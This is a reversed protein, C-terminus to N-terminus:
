HNEVQELSDLRRHAEQLTVYLADLQSEVEHLRSSVDGLSDIRTHADQISTALSGLESDLDRLSSTVEDSGGGGASKENTTARLRRVDDLKGLRESISQIASELSNLRGGITEIQSELGNIRTGLDTLHRAQEAQFPAVQKADSQGHEADHPLPRLWWLLMLGLVFWMLGFILLWGTDLATRTFPLTIGPGLNFLLYVVAVLAAIAGIVIILWTIRRAAPHLEARM